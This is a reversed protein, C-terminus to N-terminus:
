LSEATGQALSIPILLVTLCLAPWLRICLWLDSRGCGSEYTLAYLRALATNNSCTASCDPWCLSLLSNWIM